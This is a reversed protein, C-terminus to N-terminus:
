AKECHRMCFDVYHWWAKEMNPTFKFGDEASLSSACMFIYRKNANRMALAFEEIILELEANERQKKRSNVTTGTKGV